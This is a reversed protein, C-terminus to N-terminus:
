GKRQYHSYPCCCEQKIGHKGLIDVFEKSTFETANDTRLIDLRLETHAHADILFRRLIDPAEARSHSLYVWTFDTAEDVFVTFYRAGGYSPIQIEGTSDMSVRGLYRTAKHDAPAPTITCGITAKNQMCCACKFRPGKASAATSYRKPIKLDYHQNSVM